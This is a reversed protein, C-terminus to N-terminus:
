TQVDLPVVVPAPAPVAASGSTTSALAANAKLNARINRQWRNCTEVAETIAVLCDSNYLTQAAPWFTYQRWPGHWRITGLIYGSSVSRVNWVGTKRTPPMPVNEFYLYKTTALGREDHYGEPHGCVCWM